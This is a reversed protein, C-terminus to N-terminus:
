PIIFLDEIFDMGEYNTLIRERLEEVVIKAAEELNRANEPLIKFRTPTNKVKEIMESDNVLYPSIYVFHIDKYRPDEQTFLMTLYALYKGRYFVIEKTRGMMEKLKFGRLSDVSDRAYLHRGSDIIIVMGGRYKKRDPNKFRNLILQVITELGLSDTVGGDSIHIYREYDQGSSRYDKLIVPGFILPVGASAVVARSIEMDGISLGYDECLRVELLEEMFIINSKIIGRDEYDNDEPALGLNFDSRKLTTFLFKAGSDMVTGNIILTPCFGNLKRTYLDDFTRGYFYHKDFDEQLYFGKEVTKFFIRLLFWPKLFVDREINRGMDKLFGDFFEVYQAENTTDLDPKNMCYYASALSGGSNSSMYDIEDLISRGDPLKVQYFLEKLVCATWYASRSGGGSVAVALFFDGEDISKYREVEPNETKYILKENSLFGCGSIGIVATCLIVMIGIKKFKM